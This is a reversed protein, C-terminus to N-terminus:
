KREIYIIQVNGEPLVATYASGIATSQWQGSKYRFVIGRPGISRVTNEIEDLQTKYAFCVDKLPTEAGVLKRVYDLAGQTSTVGNDAPITKEICAVYFRDADINTNGGADGGVDSKTLNKFILKNLLNVNHNGGM